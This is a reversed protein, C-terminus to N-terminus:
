AGQKKYVNCLKSIYLYNYIIDLVFPCFSVMSYCSYSYRAPWYYNM